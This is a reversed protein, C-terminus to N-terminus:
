NSGSSCLSALNQMADALEGTNVPKGTDMAKEADDVALQAAQIGDFLPGSNTAVRHGANSLDDQMATLAARALTPSKPYDQLFMLYEQAAAQEYVCATQPENTTGHGLCSDCSVFTLTLALTLPRLRVPARRLSRHLSSAHFSVNM